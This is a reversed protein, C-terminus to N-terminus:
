YWLWMLIATKASLMKQTLASFDLSGQSIVAPRIDQMDHSIQKLLERHWLNGYPENQDVQRVILEFIRELGSYFGHLNLAISDIFVEQEDPRIKCQQWAWLAKGTLRDLASIEGRIRDVLEEYPTSL